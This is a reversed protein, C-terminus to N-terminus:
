YHPEEKPWESALLGYIYTDVWKGESIAAERLLAERRMGLREMLKWSATNDRSTSAEIRHLGLEQFGYNILAAAAKTAYGQGRYDVGLAWGIAAQKHNRCLLTLLGILRNESKLEIALDFVRDKEFPKYANQQKIYRCIGWDTAEITASTERAVSPQQVLALIDGVDNARFRRLVLAETSIPLTM